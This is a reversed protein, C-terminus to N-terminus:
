RLPASVAKRTSTTREVMRPESATFLAQLAPRQPPSARVAPALDSVEESSAMQSMLELRIVYRAASRHPITLLRLPWDSSNDLVGTERATPNELFCAEQPEDDVALVDVADVSQVQSEQAGTAPAPAPAPANSPAASM